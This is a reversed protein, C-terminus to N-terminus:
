YKAFPDKKDDYKGELAKVYNTDNHLFWDISAKWGKDSGGKCFNSKGIKEIAAKYNDRFHQSRWRQNLKDRRIDTLVKCVPLGSINWYEIVQLYDQKKNSVTNNTTPINPQNPINDSKLGDLTPSFNAKLVNLKVPNATRYKNTLYRGAYKWWNHVMIRGDIEDIFGDGGNKLANFFKDHDGVYHAYDAVDQRSWKTIDGDPSQELVNHWFLILHGVAIHPEIQLARAFAKLKRHRALSTHTEIWM